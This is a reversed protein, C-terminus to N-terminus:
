PEGKWDHPAHEMGPMTEDYRRAVVGSAYACLCSFLLFGIVLYAATM